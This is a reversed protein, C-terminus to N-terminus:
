SSIDALKSRALFLVSVARIQEVVLVMPRKNRPRVMNLLAREFPM